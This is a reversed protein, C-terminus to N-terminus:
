IRAVRKQGTGAVARVVAQAVLYGAALTQVFSMTTSIEREGSSKLLRDFASLEPVPLSLDAKARRQPLSGGLKARREKM